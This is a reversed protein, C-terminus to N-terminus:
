GPIAAPSSQTRRAAEQCRQEVLEVNCVATDDAALRPAVVLRLHGRQHFARSLEAVDEQRLTQRVMVPACNFMHKSAFPLAVAFPM